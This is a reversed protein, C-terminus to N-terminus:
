RFCYVIRGVPFYDYTDKGRPLSGFYVHFGDAELAQMRHRFNPISRDANFHYEFVLKRCPWARSADLLSLETGEIDMKIGDFLYGSLMEWFNFLRCPAQNGRKKPLLSHRYKNKEGSCLYLMGTGSQSATVAGQLITIREALDNQHVNTQLLFLNDSEPEIAVIRKAGCIGTAWVSFAGINAGADLWTEGVEPSVVGRRLTSGYARKKIVEEIAKLDTTDARMTLLLSSVDVTMLGGM